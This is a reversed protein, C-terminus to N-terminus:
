GHRPLRFAGLERDIGLGDLDRKTFTVARAGEDFPAALAISLATKPSSQEIHWRSLRLRKAVCESLQVLAFAAGLLSQCDSPVNSRMLTDIVVQLFYDNAEWIGEFIRRNGDPTHVNSIFVDEVPDELSAIGTQGLHHNLWSGIEKYSPKRSGNCHAVALHALVELRVTNAQLSPVTFLGAIRAISHRVLLDPGNANGM